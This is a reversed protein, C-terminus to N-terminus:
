VDDESQEANKGFFIEKYNESTIVNPNEAQIMNFTYNVTITGDKAFKEYIIVISTSNPRYFNLSKIEAPFSTSKEACKTMIQKFWDNMLMNATAPSDCVYCSASSPVIKEPNQGVYNETRAGLVIVM